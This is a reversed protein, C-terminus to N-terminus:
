FHRTIVNHCIISILWSYCFHWEPSLGSHCISVTWILVVRMQRKIIKHRVRWKKTWPTDDRSKRNHIARSNFMLHSTVPLANRATAPGTTASAIKFTRRTRWPESPESQGTNSWKPKWHSEDTKWLAIESREFAGESWYYMYFVFVYLIFQLLSGSPGM